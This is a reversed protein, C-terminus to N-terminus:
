PTGTVCWCLETGDDIDTHCEWSYGRDECQTQKSDTEIPGCGSVFIIAFIVSVYKM